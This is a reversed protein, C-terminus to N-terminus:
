HIMEDIKALLLKVQNSKEKDKNCFVHYRGGCDKILEQLAVPSKEIYTEINQEEEELTEGRTFGVMTYAKSYEGFTEQIM